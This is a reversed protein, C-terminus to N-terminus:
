KVVEMHYKKVVNYIYVVFTFIDLASYLDKQVNKFKGM